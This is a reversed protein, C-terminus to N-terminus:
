LMHRHQPACEVYRIKLNSCATSSLEYFDVAASYMRKDATVDDLLACILGGACPDSIPDFSLL